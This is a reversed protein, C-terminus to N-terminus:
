NSVNQEKSTAESDDLYTYMGQQKEEERKKIVNETIRVRYEDEEEMPAQTSENMTTTTYTPELERYIVEVDMATKQKTSYASTTTGDSVACSSSQTSAQTPKNIVATTPDRYVSVDM